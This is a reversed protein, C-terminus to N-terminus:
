IKKMTRIVGQCIYKDLINIQERKRADTVLIYGGRSCPNGNTWQQIGADIVTSPM